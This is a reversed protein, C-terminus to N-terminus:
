RVSGHHNRSAARHFEWPVAVRRGLRRHQLGPGDLGDPRVLEPEDEGGVPLVVCRTRLFRPPNTLEIHKDADGRLSETACSPNPSITVSHGTGHIDLMRDWYGKLETGRGLHRLLYERVGEENAVSATIDAEGHDRPHTAPLRHEEGRLTRQRGGQRRAGRHLEVGPGAGLPPPREAHPGRAVLVLAQRTVSPEGGTQPSPPPPQNSM